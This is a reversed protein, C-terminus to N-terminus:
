MSNSKMEQDLDTTITSLEQQLKDISDRVEQGKSDADEFQADIAQIGQPTLDNRLYTDISSTEKVFSDLKQSTEQYQTTTGKLSEQVKTKRQKATERLDEDEIMMMDETWKQEYAASKERLEMSQDRLTAQQSKLSAVRRTYLQYAAGKDIEDGKLRELADLTAVVEADTTDLQTQMQEASKITEGAKGVQTGQGTECATLPFLLAAAVATASFLCNIKM